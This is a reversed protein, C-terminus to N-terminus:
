FLHVSLPAAAHSAVQLHARPDAAAAGSASMAHVYAEQIVATLAKESM